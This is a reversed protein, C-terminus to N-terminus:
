PLEEWAAIWAVGPRPPPARLGPTGLVAPDYRIVVAAGLTRFSSEPDDGLIAGVVDVRADRGADITKSVYVLGHAQLRAGQTVVLAGTDLIILGPLTRTAASHTIELSAGEALEVTSETVLAGEVIRLRQGGLLAIGGDRVYIVGRLPGPLREALLYTTLREFERWTYFSDPKGALDADGLYKGAAENLGANETNRRALDQYYTRDVALLETPAEDHLVVGAVRVGAAQLQGIDVRLDDRGLTLTADRALWLRVPAPPPVVALNGTGGPADVPGAAPEFPLPHNNLSVDTSAFRIARGAAIHIWPRDGLGAWYPLIVLAAPPPELDIRSTGHLAALLASPALYVRARLRRTVGGVEGTSTILIAGGVDDILSVRFRGDLTGVTLTRSYGSPRLSPDSSATGPGARELTSLVEHVGAEALALAAASRYRQGARTQQQNMFWIFSASSGAVVLILVLVFLLAMGRPM